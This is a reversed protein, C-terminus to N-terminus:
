HTIKLIQNELKLKEIELKLKETETRLIQNYLEIVEVCKEDSTTKDTYVQKSLMFKEHSFIVDMLPKSNNYNLYKEVREKTCYQSDLFTKIILHKGREFSDFISFYLPNQNGTSDLTNFDEDLLKGSQIILKFVQETHSHLISHSFATLGENNPQLLIDRTIKHEKLLMKIDHKAELVVTYHFFNNGKYDVFKLLEETCHESRIFQKPTSSAFLCTRKTSKTQACLVKQLDPIYWEWYEFLEYNKDSYFVRELPFIKNWLTLVNYDCLNNELMFKGLNIYTDCAIYFMIKTTHEEELTKYGNTFFTIFVRYSNTSLFTNNPLINIFNEMTSCLEDNREHDEEHDGVEQRDYDDVGYYIKHDENTDTDIDTDIDTDTCTCPCTCPCKTCTNESLIKFHTFYITHQSM